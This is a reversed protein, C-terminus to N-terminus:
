KKKAIKLLLEKFNYVSEAIKKSAEPIEKKIEDLIKNMEPNQPIHKDFYSKQCDKNCFILHESRGTFLIPNKAVHGLKTAKIMNVVESDTEPSAFLFQDCEKCYVSNM